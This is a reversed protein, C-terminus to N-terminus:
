TRLLYFLAIIYNNHCHYFIIAKAVISYIVMTKLLAYMHLIINREVVYRCISFPEVHWCHRICVYTCTCHRAPAKCHTNLQGTNTLSQDRESFLSQLSGHMVMMLTITCEIHKTPLFFWARDVPIYIIIM